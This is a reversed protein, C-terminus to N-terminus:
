SPSRRSILRSPWFMTYNCHIRSAAHVKVNRCFLMACSNSDVTCVEELESVGEEAYGAGEEHNAYDDDQM